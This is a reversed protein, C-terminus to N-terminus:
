GGGCNKGGSFRFTVSSICKKRQVSHTPPYDGTFVTATQQTAFHTTFKLQKLSYNGETFSARVM